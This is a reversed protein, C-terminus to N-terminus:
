HFSVLAARGFGRFIELTSQSFELLIQKTYHNLESNRAMYILPNLISNILMAAVTVFQMAQAKEPAFISLFDIYFYIFGSLWIGNISVFALSLLLVTITARRNKLFSDRGVSEMVEVNPSNLSKVTVGSCVAVVLVMLAALGYEALQINTFSEWIGSVYKGLEIDSLEMNNMVMQRSLEDLKDLQYNEYIVIWKLIAVILLFISSCAFTGWVFKTKIVYLPRTMSVMRTCSLLVTLFCSTEVLFNQPVFLFTKWAWDFINFSKQSQFITEEIGDNKSNMTKIREIIEIGIQAVKVSALM